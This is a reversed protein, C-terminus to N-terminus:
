GNQSSNPSVIYPLPLPLNNSLCQQQIINQRTHKIQIHKKLAPKRIYKKGCVDCTYTTEASLKVRANIPLNENRLAKRSPTNECVKKYIDPLVDIVFKRISSHNGQINMKPIAVDYLTTFVNKDDVITKYQTGQGQLHKPNPYEKEMENKWKQIKEKEIFITWSQSFEKAFNHKKFFSHIESKEVIIEDEVDSIKEIADVLRNYDNLLEKFDEDDGCRTKDSHVRLAKKRFRKGVLQVSIEEKEGSELNQLEKCFNRRINEM